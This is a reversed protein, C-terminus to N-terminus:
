GCSPSPSPAPPSVPLRDTSVTCAYAIGFLSAPVIAVPLIWYAEGNVMNSAFTGGVAVAMGLIGHRTGAKATSEHGLGRLALIFLVTSVIYLVALWEKLRSLPFLDAPSPPSPIIAPRPFLAARASEAFSVFEDAGEKARFWISLSPAPNQRLLYMRKQSGVGPM